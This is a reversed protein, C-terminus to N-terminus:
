FRDIQQDDTQRDTRGNCITQGAHTTSKGHAIEAVCIYM